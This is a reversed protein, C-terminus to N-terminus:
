QGTDQINIYLKLNFCNCLVIYLVFHFMEASYDTYIYVTIKDRQVFIQDIFSFFQTYDVVFPLSQVFLKQDCHLRDLSWINDARPGFTNILKTTIVM